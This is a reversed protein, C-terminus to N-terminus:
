QALACDFFSTAQCDGLFACCPAFTTVCIAADAPDANAANCVVTMGQVCQEDQKRCKKDGQKKARKVAKRTKKSGLAPAQWVGLGAGAIAALAQRRSAGIELMARERLEVIRM